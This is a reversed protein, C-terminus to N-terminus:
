EFDRMGDGGVGRVGREVSAGRRTEERLGRGEGGREKGRIDGHSSSRVIRRMVLVLGVGREAWVGERWARGWGRGGRRVYTALGLRCSRRRWPQPVSGIDCGVRRSTRRWRRCSECGSPPWHRPPCSHGVVGRVRVGLGSGRAQPNCCKGPPAECPRCYPASRRVKGTPLTCSATSHHEEVTILSQPSFYPPSPPLRLLALPLLSLTTPPPRPHASHLLVKECTHFSAIKPYRFAASALPPSYPLRTLLPSHTTSYRNTHPHHHM